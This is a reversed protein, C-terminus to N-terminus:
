QVGRTSTGGPLLQSAAHRLLATLDGPLHVGLLVLAALGAVMAVVIWPSVEGRALTGDKGAAAGRTAAESAPAGILMTQTTFWSLGFFAVTVLVVLVASLADEGSSLGGEVVLFESRFIGFPPLASLALVAAVLM